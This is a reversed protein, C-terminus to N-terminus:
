SVTVIVFVLILSGMNYLTHVIFTLFYKSIHVVYIQCVWFNITHIRVKTFINAICTLINYKLCFVSPKHKQNCRWHTASCSRPLRGPTSRYSYTRLGHTVSLSFTFYKSVTEMKEETVFTVRLLPEVSIQQESNGLLRGVSNILYVVAINCLSSIFLEVTIQNVFYNNCWACFYAVCLM